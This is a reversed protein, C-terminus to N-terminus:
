TSRDPPVDLSSTLHGLGLYLALTLSLEIRQQNDFQACLQDSAPVGRGAAFAEAYVIAARCPPDFLEHSATNDAQEETAGAAIAMKRHHAIEYHGHHLELVRLIALERPLAPLQTKFRLAHALGIFAAFVDPSNALTRHINVVGVTGKALREFVEVVVPSSPERVLDVPVKM